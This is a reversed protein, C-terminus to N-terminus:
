KFWGLIANLFDTIWGFIEDLINGANRIPLANDYYVEDEYPGNTVVTRENPDYNTQQDENQDKLNDHIPNVSTPPSHTPQSEEEDPTQQNIPNNFTEEWRLEASEGMRGFCVKIKSTEVMYQENPVVIRCGRKYTLDSTEIMGNRRTVEMFCNDYHEVEVACYRDYSTSSYDPGCYDSNTLWKRGTGCLWNEGKAADDIAVYDWASQVTLPKRDLSGTSAYKLALIVIILLIITSLNIAAKKM